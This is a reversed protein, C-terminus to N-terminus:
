LNTITRLLYKKTFCHIIIELFKKAIHNKQIGAFVESKSVFISTNLLKYAEPMVNHRSQKSFTRSMFDSENERLSTKSMGVTTALGSTDASAARLTSAIWANLNRWLREIRTFSLIM